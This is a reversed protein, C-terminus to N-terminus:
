SKFLNVVTQQLKKITVVVQKSKFFYHVVELAVYGLMIAIITQMWNPIEQVITTKQHALGFINKLSKREIVTHNFKSAVWVGVSIGIFNGLVKKTIFDLIGYTSISNLICKFTFTKEQPPNNWLSQVTNFYERNQNSKQM